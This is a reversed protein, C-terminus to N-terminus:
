LEHGMQEKKTKLYHSNYKNWKTKIPIKEVIELGYGAIGARKSPNNSLLRLKKIGLSRLIQAGVGYDREDPRHGLIENAEITNHGSEQLKYAKMKEALGIGRGEQQMYLLVGQGQKDIAEMALTLQEGCDCRLSGLIDGTVCSSHVRVLVSEDKSWKGKCLALHIEQSDIQRYSHLKFQGYRTPMEVVSIKEILSDNELRYEILDAITVIILNWKKAIERLDAMRAMTGNANMIEVLASIPEFGALRVLDVSAETHGARRLVGGNQARLPFIHGPRRLDDPRTSKSALARITKARDAASIGTTCGDRKYDVSITFPTAFASTNRNPSVMMPLDLSQCREITLGACILGKGHTAMFNVVDANIAEGACVFDGENERNADDVVVIIKGNQLDHIAQEITDGSGM